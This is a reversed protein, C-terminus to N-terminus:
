NPSFSQAFHLFSPAIEKVVMIKSHRLIEEHDLQVIPYENDRGTKADFCIPDYNGEWPCAFHIYGNKFLPKCLFEDDFMKHYMEWDINYGTNAFFTIPGAEFSPFAYRSIFSLFSPPLKRPLRAIIGDIWNIKDYRLIKWNFFGYSDPSGIRLFPPVEDEWLPERTPANLRDVFADIVADVSIFEKKAM